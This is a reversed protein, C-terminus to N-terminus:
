YHIQYIVAAKPAPGAPLDRVWGQAFDSERLTFSYVADEASSGNRYRHLTIIGSHSDYGGSIHWGNLVDPASKCSIGVPCSIVSFSSEIHGFGDATLNLDSQFDNGDVIRWNGSLSTPVRSSSITLLQPAIACRQEDSPLNVLKRLEQVTKCFENTFRILQERNSTDARATILTQYKQDALLDLEPIKSRIDQLTSQAGSDTTAEHATQTDKDVQRQLDELQHTLPSTANNVNNVVTQDCAAKEAALAQNKDTVREGLEIGGAALFMLMGFGMFLRLLSQADPRPHTRALEARLQAGALVVAVFGIGLAGFKLADLLWAM